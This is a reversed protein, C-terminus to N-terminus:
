SLAAGAGVTFEEGTVYISLTVGATRRRAHFVHGSGTVSGLGGDVALTTNEDIAVGEQVLGLDVAQV